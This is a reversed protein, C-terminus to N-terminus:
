ARKLFPALENIPRLYANDIWYGRCGDTGPITKITQRRFADSECEIWNCLHVHAPGRDPPSLHVFVQVFLDPLGKPLEVEKVAIHNRGCPDAHGHWEFQSTKVNITLDGRPTKALFDTTDGQRGTLEYTAPVDQEVLFRWLMLSGITDM